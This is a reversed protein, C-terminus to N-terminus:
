WANCLRTSGRAPLKVPLSVLQLNSCCITGLSQWGSQSCLVWRCRLLDVVVGCMKHEQSNRDPFPVTLTGALKGKDTHHRFVSGIQTQDAYPRQGLGVQEQTNNGPQLQAMIDKWAREVVVPTVEKAGLAHRAVVQVLVKGAAPLLLCFTNRQGLSDTSHYLTAYRLLGLGDPGSGELYSYQTTTRMQLEHLDFGEGLPRKRAAPAVTVVCGLSLAAAEALPLQSEYVGRAGAALLQLSLQNINAQWDAEPM